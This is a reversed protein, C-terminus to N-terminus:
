IAAGTDQRIWNTGNSAALVDLDTVYVVGNEHSAAPPLGAVAVPWAPVPAQPYQLARIADEHSKLLARVAEPVGPGVPILDVAM